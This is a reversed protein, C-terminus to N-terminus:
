FNKLLLTEGDLEAYSFHQVCDGLNVYRSNNNLEINKPDHIHGYIFYDIKRKQLIKKSHGILSNHANKTPYKINKKRSSNSLYKALYIGM